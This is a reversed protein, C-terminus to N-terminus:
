HVRALILSPSRVLIEPEGGLARIVQAERAPRFALWATQDHSRWRLIADRNPPEQVFNREAEIRLSPPPPDLLVLAAGRPATREFRESVARANFYGELAPLVRIAVIPAGLVLPVAFLVAAIRPRRIFGALLPACSSVLTIAALLRLEQGAEPLRASMLTGFVAALAGVPALVRAAANIVAAVRRPDEFLHDLVRACLIALAPVAPLAASLPPRPYFLIPLLSAILWAILLHSAAAHRLQEEVAAVVFSPDPAESGSAAPRRSRWWAGAHLAAGPLMASWPFGAAVLSVIANMPGRLWSDRTNAAYPFFPIASLLDFGHRELAAVYWPLAIAIALIAGWGPQLTAFTGGRGLVLYLLVGALPWLAPLPGAILLTLGLAAWGITLARPSGRGTVVPNVFAACAIWGLLSAIVQTGDTRAALVPGACTVFVAAALAGTRAGFWSAALRATVLALAVILLAKVTRPVWPAGSTPLACAVDIAYGLLPKDFLAVGGLVPTFAERRDILERAVAQDRAERVDLYGVRSLGSFLVVLCLLALGAISRRMPRSVLTDNARM